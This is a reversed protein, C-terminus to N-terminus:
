TGEYVDAFGGSSITPGAFNISASAVEMMLLAPPVGETPEAVLPELDIEDPFGDDTCGPALQEPLLKKQAPVVKVRTNPRFLVEADSRFESFAAISVGRVGEVNFITRPGARAM